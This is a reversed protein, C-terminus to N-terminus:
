EYGFLPPHLVDENRVVHKQGCDPCKEVMVPWEVEALHQLAWIPLLKKTNPCVYKGIEFQTAPATQTM